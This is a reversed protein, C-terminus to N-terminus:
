QAGNGNKGEMKKTALDGMRFWLCFNMERREGNMWSNARLELFIFMKM